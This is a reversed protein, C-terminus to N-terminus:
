ARANEPELTINAPTLAAVRMVCCNHWEEADIKDQAEKATAYLTTTAPYEETADEIDGSIRTRKGDEWVIAYGQQPLAAGVREFESPPITYDGCAGLDVVIGDDCDLGGWGVLKERGVPIIENGYHYICGDRLEVHMTMARRGDENSGGLLKIEKMSM